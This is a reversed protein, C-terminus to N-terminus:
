LFDFRAVWDMVVSIRSVQDILMELQITATAIREQFMLCLSTLQLQQMGIGIERVQAAVHTELDVLTEPNMVVTTTQKMWMLSIPSIVLELLQHLIGSGTVQAVVPTM